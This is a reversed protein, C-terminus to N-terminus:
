GSLITEHLVGGEGLCLNECYNRERLRMKLLRIRPRNIFALGIEITKSGDYKANKDSPTSSM